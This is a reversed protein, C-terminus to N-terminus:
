YLLLYKPDAWCTKEVMSRKQEDDELWGSLNDDKM